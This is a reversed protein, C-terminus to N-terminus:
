DGWTMVEGSVSGTVPAGELTTAEGITWTGKAIFGRFQPQTDIGLKMYLLTGSAEDTGLQLSAGPVFREVPTQLILFTMENGNLMGFLGVQAIGQEEGKGTDASSGVTQYTVDFDDGFVHFTGTGTEFHKNLHLTGWTTDYSGELGGQPVMCFKSRLPPDVNAGGEDIEKQVLSPKTQIYDDLTYSFWNYWDTLWPELHPTILARYAAVEAELEETNWVNDLLYQLRQFYFFRIEPVQYLRKVLAGTLNVSHLMYKAEPDDKDPLSMTGDTGWPIFSIRGGDSPDEYMYFNNTNGAYGDWHGTLVEMAWFDIFAELDMHADLADFLDADSAELADKIAVLGANDDEEKNTKQEFTAMWGERFDSLTGEWLTGEDNGFHRRVFPKKISDLHVYIGLYNGNVTVKAWNCRPAPFGAKEFLGFSICQRLKSPDQRSNNLTLRKMGEFEQDDVYEGFKVKLSPRDPTMSGLFGKKRIGIDQVEKGDIRVNAKFYTFPSEFPAEMCGPGLIDYITRTQFRLADWDQPPITVEVDLVRDAAFMADTPDPEPESIDPEATDVAVDVPVATDVGSDAGADPSAGDDVSAADTAVDVSTSVDQSGPTSDGCATLLLIALSLRLLSPM